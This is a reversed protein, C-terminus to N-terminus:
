ENHAGAKLQFEKRKYYWNVAFTGITCVIGILVAWQDLSLAGFAATFVGWAYAAPSSYKDSMRM